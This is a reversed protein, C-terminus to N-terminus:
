NYKNNNIINYNNKTTLPSAYFNLIYQLARKKLM